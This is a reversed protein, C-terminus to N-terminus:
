SLSGLRDRVEGLHEAQQNNPSSGYGARMRWYTRMRSRSSRARCAQGACRSKRTPGAFHCPWTSGIGLVVHAHHSMLAWAYLGVSFSEALDVLRQEIWARRHLAREAARM